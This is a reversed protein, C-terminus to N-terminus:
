QLSKKKELENRRYCQSLSNNCYSLALPNFVRVDFFARQQDNGWFSEVIIDLRAGDERKVSRQSLGEDTMPQLKPETGVGHHVETLVEAIIDRIEKVHLRFEFAFITKM